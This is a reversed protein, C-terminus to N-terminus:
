FEIILFSVDDTQQNVGKWNIHEETIIQKIENVPKECHMLILQKLRARSFKKNKEGGFQDTLGDSFLILRDDQLIDLEFNEFENNLNEGISYKGAILEKLEGQKNFLIAKGNASCYSLKRKKTSYYCVTGEMHAISHQNSNFTNHLQYNLLKVLDNPREIEISTTLENLMLSGSISLLAAPVGHGTSDTLGFVIGQSTNKIFVSDGGIGIQQMVSYVADQFFKKFRLCYTCNFRILDRAWFERNREQLDLRIDTLYKTTRALMDEKASLQEKYFEIDM